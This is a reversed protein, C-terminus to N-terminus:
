AEKITFSFTTGKGKKSDVSIEGDNQHIFEKCIVLGLGSGIENNTGPSSFNEDIKFLKQLNKEEIGVGQDKISIKVFKEQAQAAITFYSNSYSFKIANNILNRLVTSIMNIDAFVDTDSDIEVIPKINKEQLHAKFLLIIEETLSKLNFRQQNLKISGTQSQSWELLNELLAYLQESSQSMKLILDHVDDATLNKFDDALFSSQVLFGGIVGKLDHSLISFFKDKTTILKNLENTQDLIQRNKISLLQLAKKKAQGQRYLLIILVLFLVFALSLISIIVKKSQNQKNLQAIKRQKDSTQYQIELEAIEKRTEQNLRESKLETFLEHFYLAKQFNIQRKYMDYLCKYNIELTYKDNIEKAIEISRQFNSLAQDYNNIMSQIEGINLLSTAIGSKNNLKSELVYSKQYYDLANSYDGMHFYVVGINNLAKSLGITDKLEEKISISELYYEIAKEYDEKYRYVIGLNNYATGIGDIDKQKINTELFKEFFHISKDIDDIYFYLEGLFSSSLDIYKLNDNKEALNLLESAYKIADEVSTNMYERTLQRLVEMREVDVSKDLEILLSDTKRNQSFVLFPFTLFILISIKLTNRM